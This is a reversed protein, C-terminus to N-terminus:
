PVDGHKMCIRMFINLKSHWIKRIIQYFYSAHWCDRLQLARCWWTYSTSITLNTGMHRAPGQATRPDAAVDHAPLLRRSLPRTPDIAARNFREHLPSRKM